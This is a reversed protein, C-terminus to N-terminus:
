DTLLTKKIKFQKMGIKFVIKNRWEIQNGNTDYFEAFVRNRNIVELIVGKQGTILKSNLNETLEIEKYLFQKEFEKKPDTPREIGFIIERLYYYTQKLIKLFGDAIVELIFWALIEFLVELIIM